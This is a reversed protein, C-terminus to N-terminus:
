CFTFKWLVLRDKTTIQRHNNVIELM